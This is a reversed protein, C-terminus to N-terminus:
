DQTLDGNKYKKFYRYFTILHHIIIYSDSFLYRKGTKSETYVKQYEKVAKALEFYKDFMTKSFNSIENYYSKNEILKVINNFNLRTDDEDFNNRESFNTKFADYFNSENLLVPIDGKEDITLVPLSLSMAEIIGRGTGIVADSLYLMKSAELTYRPDTIVIVNGNLVAKDKILNNYLDYDQKSGIIYLKVNHSCKDSLKNILNISDYISKEYANTIRCIRVFVFSDIDKKIPVYKPDIKLTGSRNPILYIASEKFKIKNEFWYKNELSFLILNHVHPFHYPKPNPGGCKTLIIKNKRSSVFIRVISYTTVDFCHYIDPKFQERIKKLDRRFEILNFGNFFIHKEFFPNAELVGSNGVGITIIKVEHHKGLVKSIHNLSHYHGGRGNGNATIFFLIRM